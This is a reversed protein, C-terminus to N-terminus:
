SKCKRDVEDLLSLLRRKGAPAVNALSSRIQAVTKPSVYDDSESLPRGPTREQCAAAAAYQAMETADDLAKSIYRGRPFRTWYQLPGDIIKAELICSATCEDTDHGMQAATWVLEDAWPQGKNRKYIEWYAQSLPMWDAAYPSPEVVDRHGLLWAMVLPKDAISDYAIPVQKVLLLRHYQLLGSQKLHWAYKGILLNDVAVYDEFRAHDIGQLMRDVLALLAPGPRNPDFPTTVSASVWCAVEPGSERSRYWVSDAQRTDRDVYIDAGLPFTRLVRSTTDPKDRCTTSTGIAM